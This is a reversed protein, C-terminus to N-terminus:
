DSFRHACARTRGGKVAEATDGRDFAFREAAGPSNVAGLEM